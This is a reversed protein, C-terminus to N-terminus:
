YATAKKRAEESKKQEQYYSCGCSKGCREKGCRGGSGRGAQLQNNIYTLGSSTLKIGISYNKIDFRYNVHYTYASQLDKPCDNRSASHEDESNDILKSYHKKNTNM